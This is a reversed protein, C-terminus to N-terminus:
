KDNKIYDIVEILCDYIVKILEKDVNYPHVLIVSLTKGNNLCYLCTWYGYEEVSSKPHFTIDERGVCVKELIQLM